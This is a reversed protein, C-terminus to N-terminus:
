SIFAAVQVAVAAFVLSSGGVYRDVLCLKRVKSGEQAVDFIRFTSTVIKHASVLREVKRVNALYLPYSEIGPLAGVQHGAPNKGAVSLRWVSLLLASQRRVGKFRNGDRCETILATADPLQCILRHGNSSSKTRGERRGERAAVDLYDIQRANGE